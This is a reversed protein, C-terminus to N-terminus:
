PIGHIKEVLEASWQSGPSGGMVTSVSFVGKATAVVHEGTRLIFGLWVGLQWRDRFNGTDHQMKPIKFLVAEGFPVLKATTRREPKSSRM